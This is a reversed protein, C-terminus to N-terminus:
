TSEFLIISLSFLQPVVTKPKRHVIECFFTNLNFNATSKKHKIWKGIGVIGVTKKEDGAAGWFKLPSYM